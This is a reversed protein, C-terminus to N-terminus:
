LELEMGDYAVDIGQKKMETALTAHDTHLGCSMHSICFRKVYMSLTKKMEIVMNMNNHEFIRYDGEQFGVTGDLVALDVPQKEKIAEVEDYLLWAGDLGYFITSDDKSILYHLTPTRHHGHVAKITYNGVTLEEGDSIEIFEAGSDLLHDLTEANFHDKHRHTNLVYKIEAPDIDFEELADIVGPGPDILLTKDIIASANRRHERIGDRWEPPWDAAGTGLFMIKMDYRTNM